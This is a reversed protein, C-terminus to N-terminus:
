EADAPHLYIIQDPIVIPSNLNKVWYERGEIHLRRGILKRLQAPNGHINCVVALRGRENPRVLRYRAPNHPAILQANRLEGEVTVFSGQEADEDLDLESLLVSSVSATFTVTDGMSLSRGESFSPAPLSAAKPQDPQVPQAVVSPAVHPTIYPADAGPATQTPQPTIAVPAAQPPSPPVPRTSAIPQGGPQAPAVRTAPATSASPTPQPKAPPPTPKSPATDAAVRPSAEKQTPPPAPPTAVPAKGPAAMLEVDQRAIWVTCASPPAIKLWEGEVGRKFIHANKDLSGVIDHQIGPGSRVQAKRAIVKNKDIFESSIWLDISEPPQIAVWDARIDTAFLIDGAAATGLRESAISALSRVDASRLVKVRTEDARVAVALCTWVVLLIFSIQKKM